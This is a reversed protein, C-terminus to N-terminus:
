LRHCVEKSRYKVASFSYGVKQSIARFTVGQSRLQKIKEITVDPMSKSNQKAKVVRSWKRDLKIKGDVLDALRFSMRQYFLLKYFKKQTEM